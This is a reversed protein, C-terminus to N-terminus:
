GHGNDRMYEHVKTTMALDASSLDHTREAVKGISDGSPTRIERRIRYAYVAAIIAPLGSILAILVDPWGTAGIV